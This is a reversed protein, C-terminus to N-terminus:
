CNKAESDSNGCAVNTDSAGIYVKSGRPYTSIGFLNANDTVRYYDVTDEGIRQGYLSFPQEFLMVRYKFDFGAIHNGLKTDSADDCSEEGNVCETQFTVVKFWDSVSYAQGKGCWMASWSVGLELGSIPNFNLPTKWLQDEARNKSKRITRNTCYFALISFGNTESRTAQSRSFSIWLVARANNSVIFRSSQAPGREM